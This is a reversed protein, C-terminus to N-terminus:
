LGLESMSVPRTGFVMPIMVGDGRGQSGDGDGSSTHM